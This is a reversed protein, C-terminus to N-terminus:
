RGASVTENAIAHRILGIEDEIHIWPFWQTGHRRPRGAGLRFLPLMKRLFGGARSLVAGSRLIVVRVGLEAARM